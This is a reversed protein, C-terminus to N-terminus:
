SWKTIEYRSRLSGLCGLLPKTHAVGILGIQADNDRFTYVGERRASRRSPSRQGRVRADSLTVSFIRTAGPWTRVPALHPWDTPRRAVRAMSQQMALSSARATHPLLTDEEPCWIGSLHDARVISAQSCRRGPSRRRSCVRHGNPLSRM